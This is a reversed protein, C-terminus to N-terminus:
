KVLEIRKENLFIIYHIFLGALYPAHKMLNQREEFSPIVGHARENREQRLFTLIHKEGIINNREICDIMFALKSLDHNSVPFANQNQAEGLYKKLETEFIKGFYFLGMDVNEVNLNNIARQLNGKLNTDSLSEVESFSLTTKDIQNVLYCVRSKTNEQEKQVDEMESLYRYFTPKLSDIKQHVYNWVSELSARQNPQKILFERIYNQVIERQTIKKQIRKKRKGLQYPKQGWASLEYEKASVKVFEARNSLFVLVSAKPANPRISLVFEHIEDVTARKKNQHFFEEMAKVISDTRFETWEKLKWEGSKGIPAFRKDAVLQAQLSREVINAKRGFKVMRHNLERLLNRLRLPKKEKFLVRYAKDAISTLYEFKIQFFTEDNEVFTEVSKCIESSFLIYDDSINEKAKRSAIIKLDFLSLSQPSKRLTNAVIKIVKYFTKRYIASENIWTPQIDESLTSINEPLSSFDCVELFLNLIGEFKPYFEFNLEGNTKSLNEQTLCKYNTKLFDAFIASTHRVKNVDISFESNIEVNSFLDAQIKEIAKEEIQRIRERTVSYFVGVQELTYTNSGNLGFRRKIVESEKPKLSPLEKVFVNLDSFFKEHSISLNSISNEMSEKAEKNNEFGFIGL